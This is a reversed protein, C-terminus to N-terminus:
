FLMRCGFVKYVSRLKISRFWERESRAVGVFLRDPELLSKVLRPRCEFEALVSLYSAFALALLLVSIIPMRRRSLFRHASSFPYCVHLYRQFALLVMLWASATHSAVPVLEALITRTYLCLGEGLRASANINTNSLTVPPKLTSLSGSWFALPSLHGCAWGYPLFDHKGGFMHAQLTFPFPAISALTHTIALALLIINTASRLMQSALLVRIAVINTLLTVFTVLPIACSFVTFFCQFIYLYVLLTICTDHTANLARM